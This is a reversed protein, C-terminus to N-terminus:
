VKTCVAEELLVQRAPTKGHPMSYLPACVPLARDELLALWAAQAPHLDHKEPYRISLGSLEAKVDAKRNM